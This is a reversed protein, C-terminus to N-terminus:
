NQMVAEGGTESEAPDGENGICAYSPLDGVFDAEAASTRRHPAIETSEPRKRAPYAGPQDHVAGFQRTRIM